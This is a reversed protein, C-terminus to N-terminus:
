EITEPIEPEFHEGPQLMTTICASLNSDEQDRRYSHLLEKKAYTDLGVTYIHEKLIGEEILSIEIAKELDLLMRGNSYSIFQDVESFTGYFLDGVDDKIEYSEAAIHPGVGVILDAPDVDYAMKMNKIARRSIRSFTGKWGSHINAQVKKVPDYFIIPVCDAETSALVYNKQATILGDVGINRHGFKYKRGLEPEDVISVWDSHKQDMFYFQEPYIDMAQYIKELNEAVEENEEHENVRMNMDITTFLHNLGAAMLEPIRIYRINDVTMIEYSPKM